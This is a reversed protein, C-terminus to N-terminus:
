IILSNQLPAESLLLWSQGTDRATDLNGPLTVANGPLRDSSRQRYLRYALSLCMNMMTRLKTGRVTSHHSPVDDASRM